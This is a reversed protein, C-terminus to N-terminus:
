KVHRQTHGGEGGMGREKEGTQCVTALYIYEKIERHWAGRNQASDPQGPAAAKESCRCTFADLHYYAFGQRPCPLTHLIECSSVPPQDNVIVAAVM